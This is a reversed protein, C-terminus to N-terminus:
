SSGWSSSIAVQKLIRAQFIGHVSSGPLSYDMLHLTLYSQAVSPLCMYTTVCVCIVCICVCVCVYIYIYLCDQNNGIYLIFNTKRYNKCQNARNFASNSLQTQNKTVCHVAACWAESDKVIQHYIFTSRQKSIHLSEPAEQTTSTTLFKGALAPSSLSAPEIGPHPPDRSSLMVVMIRAQLIGHVSSGPLSCDMPDCLTLCSQLSRAHM